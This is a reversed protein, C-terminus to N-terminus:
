INLDTDADLLPDYDKRLKQHAALTRFTLHSYKAEQLERTLEIEQVTIKKAQVSNYPPKIRAELGLNHVIEDIYQTIVPNKLYRYPKSDSSTIYWDLFHLNLLRTTTPLYVRYNIPWDSRAWVNKVRVIENDLLQIPHTLGYVTTNWKNKRNLEDHSLTGLRSAILRKQFKAEYLHRIATNSLMYGANSLMGIVIQRLPKDVSDPLSDPESEVRLQAQNSQDSLQRNTEALEQRIEKLRRELTKKKALLTQKSTRTM